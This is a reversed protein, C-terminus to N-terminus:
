EQPQENAGKTLSGSLRLATRVVALHTLAQPFNGSLHRGKVDYEESLLGLDNSVALVKEFTRRADDGRGQLSQCDALWCSCALFAGEGNEGKPQSRLVFGDRMLHHEIGAITRAIRRDAIPLFGMLPLLLLSADLEQAGYYAVFTGLGEDYAERCIEEHMERALDALRCHSKSDRGNMANELRIFRDVAVWASVKSYVYHRPKGRIEWLGHDPLRWVKEVHHVIARLTQMEEDTPQLGDKSALHVTNMLEGFVDLQRQAAAANGVRVPSAWRFGPLWEPSWEELRRSGDLRYMIRMKDPDGAIARMLWDRWNKAAQRYGANLLASLTFTADRIWVYRYDWNMEGGPKEPLSTTPAAVIAGTQEFILAKLTLLSRKVAEPWETHKQFQCIWERWLSQTASLAEHVDFPRPCEAVSSGYALIFSMEEGERLEAETVIAEREHRSPKSSYLVVQDPGVVAVVRENNITVFPPISGYDFRLKLNSCCTVKGRLVKLIRVISTTGNGIPMFDTVLLIGEPTEVETELIVTDPRYRRNTQLIPARLQLKWCGHEENGVLAAFCADSDFRPWCLWDISGDRRILAATKHDGILGYDEILSAM